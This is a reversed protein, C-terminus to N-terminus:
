QDKYKSFEQGIGAKVRHIKSDFMKRLLKVGLYGIVLLALGSLTNVFYMNKRRGFM